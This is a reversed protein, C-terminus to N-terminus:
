KANAFSKLFDDASAPLSPSPQVPASQVVQQTVKPEMQPIAMTPTTTAPTPSAERKGQAFVAAAVNLDGASDVLSRIQAYTLKTTCQTLDVLADIKAADEEVLPASKIVKASKGDPLTIVELMVEVDTDAQSGKLGNKTFKFFVGTEADLAHIGEEKVLRKMKEELKQKVKHGLLLVNWEGSMNKAYCYWKSDLNHEQLWKQFPLLANKIADASRGEGQMKVRLSEMMNKQEEIKRCEPCEQEVLKTKYNVKEICEFPKARVKDPSGDVAVGYGFHIKHFTAFLGKELLSRVPPAIRYINDQGEKIKYFPKYTSNSGNKNGDLNVKGFYNM